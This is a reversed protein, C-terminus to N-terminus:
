FKALFGISLVDKFQIRPKADKGDEDAILIDDDYILLTSFTTSLYKNIKFVTLTEWNVDVHGISEYSQFLTLNSSFSVNKALEKFNVGAKLVSGLEFRINEGKEVGFAGADALTQNGVITVKGAVPAILAYFKDVRKYELGAAILAYAPALAESILSSRKEGAEVTTDAVFTYGPAFQTRFDLLGSASWNKSLSYGYKSVLILQDDTKKFLKKSGGVQAVGYSGDFSNYWSHKGKQYNANLKLLSGLSISSQGGGAWNKLGVQTFNLNFAGNLDWNSSDKKIPVEKKKANAVSKDIEGVVADQGFSVATFLFASLAIVIKKM